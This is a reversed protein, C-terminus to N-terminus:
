LIDYKSLYVPGGPRDGRPLRDFKLHHDVLFLSEFDATKLHVLISAIFM